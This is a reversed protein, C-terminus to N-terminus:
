LLILINYIIFWTIFSLIFTILRQNFKRKHNESKLDLLTKYTYIYTIPRFVLPAFFVIPGFIFLLILEWTKYSEISNKELISSEYKLFEEFEEKAKDIIEKQENSSVNRLALENRAQIRAEEVWEDETSHAIFILEETERSEIPPNFVPM